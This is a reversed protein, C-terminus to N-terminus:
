DRLLITFLQAASGGEISMTLPAGPNGPALPGQAWSYVGKGIGLVAVIMLNPTTQAQFSWVAANPQFRTNLQAHEGASGGKAGISSYSLFTTPFVASQMLFTSNDATQPVLIWDQSTAGVFPGNAFSNVPVFEQGGNYNGDVTFANGVVDLIRVLSTSAAAVALDTTSAALKHSFRSYCHGLISRHPQPPEGDPLVPQWSVVIGRRIFVEVPGGPDKTLPHIRNSIPVAGSMLMKEKIRMASRAEPCLHPQTCFCSRGSRSARLATELRSPGQKQTPGPEPSLPPHTGSISSEETLNCTWM